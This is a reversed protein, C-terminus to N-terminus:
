GPKRTRRHIRCKIGYVCRISLSVYAQSGFVFALCFVSVGRDPFCATLDKIVEVQGGHTQDPEIRKGIGVELQRSYRGTKCIM